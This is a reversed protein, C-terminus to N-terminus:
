PSAPRRPTRPSTIRDWLQLRRSTRRLVVLSRARDRPRGADRLRVTVSARRGRGIRASHRRVLEHHVHSFRGRFDESGADALRPSARGSDTRRVMALDSSAWVSSPTIVAVFSRAYFSCGLLDVPGRDTAGGLLSSGPPARGLRVRRCTDSSARRAHYGGSWAPRSQWGICSSRCCSRFVMVACRNDRACM